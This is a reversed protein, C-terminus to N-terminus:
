INGVAKRLTNPRVCMYLPYSYQEGRTWAQRDRDLVNIAYIDQGLTNVYPGFEAPAMAKKFVGSAGVPFFKAENAAVAVTSNDDTGRYNHWTIGGFTFASFAKNSRLDEAAAWNQYTKEVTPHSILNDYFTDGVLAHVSTQSTFAGKSSRAMARTVAQCKERVKTTSTTLAFDIAAAESVGFESFYDYIVTTGDADLLKGQLAGLRHYEHTLEMDDRVRSMRRLYEAQVQMLETESGFGRIGQVEEAYLTFGKALRTTKLPVASRNDKVLEEPPAGTPSSPILSLTGEREDVFVTRTRVPMDEFIGLEGLLQPKYDTKEVAGTLSTMSFASSNFVDMSAM